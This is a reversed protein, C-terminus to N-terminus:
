RPLGPVQHPEPNCLSKASAPCATDGQTAPPHGLQGDDNLGWAWVTGDARLALSLDAGAAIQTVGDIGVPQAARQCAVGQDCIAADAPEPGIAGV